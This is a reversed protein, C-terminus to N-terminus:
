YELKLRQSQLLRSIAKNKSCPFTAAQVNDCTLGPRHIFYQLNVCKVTLYVQADTSGLAAEM